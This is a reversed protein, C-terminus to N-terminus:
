NRNKKNNKKAKLSYQNNIKLKNEAYQITAADSIDSAYGLTEADSINKIENNIQENKQQEKHDKLINKARKKNLFSIAKKKALKRYM